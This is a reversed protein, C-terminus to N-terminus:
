CYSFIFLIFLLKSIQHSNQWLAHIADFLIKQLFKCIITAVSLFILSNNQNLRLTVNFKERFKFKFKQVISVCLDDLRIKHYKFNWCSISPVKIKISYLKIPAKFTKTHKMLYQFGQIAM